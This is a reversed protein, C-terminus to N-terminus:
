SRFTPGIGKEGPIEASEGPSDPGSAEMRKASSRNAVGM